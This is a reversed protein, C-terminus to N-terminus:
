KVATHDPAKALKTIKAADQCNSFGQIEEGVGPQVDNENVLVSFTSGIVVDVLKDSRDDMRMIADNFHRKLTYAQNIGNKGFRIETRKFVTTGPYNKPNQMTFGRNELASSVAKALGVNSTANLVRVTVTNSNLVKSTGQNDKTPCATVVGYNPQEAQSAKSSKGIVGFYVLLSIVMAVILIVIAISFVMKQRDRVFKQRAKREDFAEPTTM